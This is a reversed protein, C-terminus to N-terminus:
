CNRGRIRRHVVYGWGILQGSELPEQVKSEWIGIINNYGQPVRRICPSLLPFHGKRYFAEQFHTM